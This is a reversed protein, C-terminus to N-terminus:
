PIQNNQESEYRRVRVYEALMVMCYWAVDSWRVTSCTNAELDIRLSM